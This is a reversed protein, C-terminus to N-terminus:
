GTKASGVGAVAMLFLTPILIVIYIFSQEIRCALTTNILVTLTHVRWLGIRHQLLNFALSEM